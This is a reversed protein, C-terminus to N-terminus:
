CGLLLAKFVTFLHMGRCFRKLEDFQCLVGFWRDFYFRFHRWNRWDAEPTGRGFPFFVGTDYLNKLAFLVTLHVHFQIVLHGCILPPAMSTRVFFSHVPTGVLCGFCCTFESGKSTTPPIKHRLWVKEHWLRRCVFGGAYFYSIKCRKLFLMFIMIYVSTCIAYLWNWFAREGQVTEIAMRSINPLKHSWFFRGVITVRHSAGESPNTWTGHLAPATESYSGMPTHIPM